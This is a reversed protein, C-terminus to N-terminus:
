SVPTGCKGCFRAQPRLLMGCNPCMREEVEKDAEESPEEGLRTGCEYCFKAGPVSEKGCIPCIYIPPKELKEKIQDGDEQIKKLIYLADKITETEIQLDEPIDREMNTFYKKGFASYLKDLNEECETKYIELDKQKKLLLKRDM